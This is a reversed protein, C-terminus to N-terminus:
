SCKCNLNNLKLMVDEASAPKNIWGTAGNRFAQLITPEDRRRSMVVIKAEMLPDINGALEWARIKKIITHGDVEPLVIDLIILEYPSNLNFAQKILELGMNGDNASDCAGKTAFINCISEKLAEEADIVLTKM